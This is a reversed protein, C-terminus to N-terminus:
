LPRGFSPKSSAGEHMVFLNQLIFMVLPFPYMFYTYAYIYVAYTYKNVM